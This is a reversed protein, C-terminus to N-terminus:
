AVIACGVIFPPFGEPRYRVLLPLNKQVTADSAKSIIWAKAAHIITRCFWEVDALLMKGRIPLGGIITGDEFNLIAGRPAGLQTGPVTFMVRDFISKNKYVHGSHAVGCRIYYLDMGGMHEFYLNTDCWRSYRVGVAAHAGVGDQDIELCACIDPLSLSAAIALYYLRSSLAKEIEEFISALEIPVNDMRWCWGIGPVLKYGTLSTSYTWKPESM